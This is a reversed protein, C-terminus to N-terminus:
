GRPRDAQEARQIALHFARVFLARTDRLGAPPMVLNITTVKGPLASSMFDFALVGVAMGAPTAAAAAGVSVQDFVSSTDLSREVEAGDPLSGVFREAAHRQIAEVLTLVHWGSELECVEEAGDDDVFWLRGDDVTYDSLDFRQESM